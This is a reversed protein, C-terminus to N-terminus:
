LKPYHFEDIFMTLVSTIASLETEYRRWRAVSSSYLPQAVQNRSPSAIFKGVAREHFKLVQPDWSLGLFAFVRQFTPEFAEVADEYRFELYEV